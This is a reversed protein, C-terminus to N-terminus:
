AAPETNECAWAAYHERVLEDSALHEQYDREAYYGCICGREGGCLSSHKDVGVYQLRKM